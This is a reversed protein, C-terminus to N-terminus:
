HKERHRVKAARPDVFLFAFLFLRKSDLLKKKGHRCSSIFFIQKSNLKESSNECLVKEHRRKSSKLTLKRACM